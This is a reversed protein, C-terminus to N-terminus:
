LTLELGSSYIAKVELGNFNITQGKIFGINDPYRAIQISSLRLESKYTYNITVFGYYFDQPHVYLTVRIDGCGDHAISTDFIEANSYNDCDEAWITDWLQQPVDQVHVTANFEGWTHGHGNHLEYHNYNLYYNIKGKREMVPWQHNEMIDEQVDTINAFSGKLVISETIDKNMTELNHGVIPMPETSYFTNNEDLYDADFVKVFRNYYSFGPCMQSDLSVLVDDKLVCVQGKYCCMNKALTLSLDTVACEIEIGAIFTGLVALPDIVPNLTALYNIADMIGYFVPMIANKLKNAAYATDIPTCDSEFRSYDIPKSFDTQEASTVFHNNIEELAEAIPDLLEYPLANLVPNSSWLSSLVIGESLFPLTLVSGYANAKIKAGQRVENWTTRRAASAQQDQLDTFGDYPLFGNGLLGFLPGFIPYNNIRQLFKGTESGFFPTAITNISYVNYPYNNAYEQAILGGRSHGILNIKPIYHHTYNFDHCLRNAIREFSDFELANSQFPDSSSFVVISHKQGNPDISQINRIEQKEGYSVINSANDKVEPYYWLHFRSDDDSDREAVFVNSNTKEEIKAIVSDPNYCFDGTGTSCNPNNSGIPTYILDNSWAREHTGFGPILFTFNPLRVATPAQNKIQVKVLSDSVNTLPVYETATSDAYLGCITEQLGAAGMIMSLAVIPLFFKTFKRKM